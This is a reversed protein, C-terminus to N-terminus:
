NWRNLKKAQEYTIVPKGIKANVANHTNFLWERASDLNHIPHLRLKSVFGGFERFCDSCGIRPAHLPNLLKLATECRSIFEEFNYSAPAVNLYNAMANWEIHGWEKPHHYVATAEDINSPLAIHELTKNYVLMDNLSVRTMWQTNLSMWIDIDNLGLKNDNFLRKTKAFVENPTKGTVITEGKNIVFSVRWGGRPTVMDGVLCQAMRIPRGRKDSINIAKTRTIM